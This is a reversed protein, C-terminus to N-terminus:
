PTGGKGVKSWDLTGTLTLRGPATEVGTVVLPEYFGSFDFSKGIKLPFPLGLSKVQITKFALTAPPVVSLEGAAEVGVGLGMVKYRGSIRVLNGPLIELRPDELDADDAIIAALSEPGLWAQLRTEAAGNVKAAKRDFRIDRAEILVEDIHYKDRLMVDYGHVSVRRLEGRKLASISEDSVKVDYRRAPGVEEKVLDRVVGRIKRNAGPINCGALAFALLL